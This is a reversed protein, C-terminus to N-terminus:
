TDDEDSSIEIPEDDDDGSEEESEDDLYALARKFRQQDAGRAVAAAAAARQPRGAANRVPPLSDKGDDSVEGDDSRGEEDADEDDEGSPAEEEEEEEGSPAEEEEDDVFEASAAAAKDTRSRKAAPAKCGQRELTGGTMTKGCGTCKNKGKGKTAGPAVLKGAEACGKSLCRRWGCNACLKRTVGETKHSCEERCCVLSARRPAKRHSRTNQHKMAPPSWNAQVADPNRHVHLNSPLMRVVHNPRKGLVFCLGYTRYYGTETYTPRSRKEPDRTYCSQEIIRFVVALGRHRDAPPLAKGHLQEVEDMVKDDKLTLHKLLEAWTYGQGNNDNTSCLRRWIFSLIVAKKKQDIDSDDAADGKAARLSAQAYTLFCSRGRVASAIFPRSVDHLASALLRRENSDTAAAAAADGTDAAMVFASIAAHPHEGERIPVDLPALFSLTEQRLAPRGNMTCFNAAFNKVARAVDLVHQPVLVSVKAFREKNEEANHFSVVANTGCFRCFAQLVDSANATQTCYFLMATIASLTKGSQPDVCILSVCRKVMHYGAVALSCDPAVKKLFQVALSYFAGDLKPDVRKQSIMDFPNPWTPAARKNEEALKEMGKRINDFEFWGRGAGPVGNAFVEAACGCLEAARAAHVRAKSGFFKVRCQRGEVVIGVTNIDAGNLLADLHKRGNDPMMVKFPAYSFLTANPQALHKAAWEKAQPSTFTAVHYEEESLVTHDMRELDFYTEPDRLPLFDLRRMGLGPATEQHKRARPSHEPPSMLCLTDFFSGIPTATVFWTMFVRKYVADEPEVYVTKSLIARLKNPYGERDDAIPCVDAEDFILMFRVNDNTRGMCDLLSGLRTVTRPCVLVRGDNMAEVTDALKSKPGVLAVPPVGPKSFMRLRSALSVADELLAAASIKCAAMEAAKEEAVEDEDKDDERSPDEEEEENDSSEDSDERGAAGDAAGTGSAGAGRGDGGLMRDFQSQLQRAWLIKPSIIVPCIVISYKNGNDVDSSPGAGGRLLPTALLRAAGGSQPELFFNNMLMRAVACLLAKLGTKGSQCSAALIASGLPHGEEVLARMSDLMVDAIRATSGRDQLMAEARKLDEKDMLAPLGAAGNMADALVEATVAALQREQVSGPAWIHMAHAPENGAAKGSVPPEAGDASDCIWVERAGDPHCLVFLQDESVVDDWLVDPFIRTYAKLQQSWVYLQTAAGGGFCAVCFDRLRAAAGGDAAGANFRAMSRSTPLAKRESGSMLRLTAPTLAAPPAGSGSAPLPTTM